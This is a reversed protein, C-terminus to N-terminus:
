LGGGEEAGDLMTAEDDDNDDDSSSSPWGEADVAALEACHTGVFCMPHENKDLGCRVCIGGGSRRPHRKKCSGRRNRSSEYDKGCRACRLIKPIPQRRATPKALTKNKLDHPAAPPPPPPSNDIILEMCRVVHKCWGSTSDFPCSCSALLDDKGSIRAVLTTVLITYFKNATTSWIQFAFSRLEGQKTFGSRRPLAVDDLRAKPSAGEVVIQRTLGPLTPLASEEDM